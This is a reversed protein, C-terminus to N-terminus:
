LEEVGEELEVVGCSEVALTGIPARLVAGGDEEVRGLLFLLRVRLDLLEGGRTAERGLLDDGFNFRGLGEPAGFFVVLLIEFFAALGAAVDLLVIEEIGACKIGWGHRTGGTEIRSRPFRRGGRM